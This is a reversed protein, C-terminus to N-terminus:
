WRRTQNGSPHRQDGPVEAAQVPQGADVDEGQEGPEEVGPYKKEGCAGVLRALRLHRAPRPWSGAERWRPSPGPGGGPDQDLRRRAGGSGLEVARCLAALRAPEKLARVIGGNM